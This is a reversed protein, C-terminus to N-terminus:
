KFIRAISTTLQHAADALAADRTLLIGREFPHKGKTGPHQIPGTVFRGGFFLVKQGNLNRGNTERKHSLKGAATRTRRSGVVRPISHASTDREILQMPGTAQIIASPGDFTTRVGVRAGRKGVGSLRFKGGTAAGVTTRIGTSYTRASAAVLEAPSASYTEALQNM